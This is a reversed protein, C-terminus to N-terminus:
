KVSIPLWSIMSPVEPEVVVAQDVVSPVLQLRIEPSPENPISPRLNTAWPIDSSPLPPRTATPLLRGVPAPAPAVSMVAVAQCERSPLVHVRAWTSAAEPWSIIPPATLMPPVTTAPPLPTAQTEESPVLQDGTATGPAWPKMGRATPEHPPPNAM